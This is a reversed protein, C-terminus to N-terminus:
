HVLAPDIMRRVASVRDVPLGLKDAHARILAEDPALYVCYVKDETVYSRLWQIEPGLERLVELSRMSFDQLQEHSLLHAGPVVREIVFEPMCGEGKNVPAELSGGFPWSGHSLVDIAHKEIRKTRDFGAAGLIVYRRWREKSNGKSDPTRRAM